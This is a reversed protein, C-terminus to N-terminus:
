DIVYPGILEQIPILVPREYPTENPSHFTLLLTGEFTRFVMGHGGDRSYIPTENQIWPGTITGSESKALGVAYGEKGFSSWLMLLNGDGNTHIFPGDTIYNDGGNHDMVWPADSAKFLFVPDGAASSLDKALQIAWMEGDKVQLWEHCFIMWPTGDPAVYLTGDLCEWDPPTVPRASHPQFPGTPSDSVLIQTGRCIGDAKFSALMYFRGNYRHVEPAWFNKDAWFDASPRFAQYPGEWTILDSSSYTDFGTGHGWCNLDTTGYLYYKGEEEIPVIFPDRIHIENILM